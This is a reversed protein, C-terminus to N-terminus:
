CVPELSNFSFGVCVNPCLVIFVLVSAPVWHTLFVTIPSPFQEHLPGSTPFPRIQCLLLSSYLIQNLWLHYQLDISLVSNVIHNSESALTHIPFPHVAAPMLKPLMGLLLYPARVHPLFFTVSMFAM